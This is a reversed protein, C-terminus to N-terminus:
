QCCSIFPMSIISGHQALDTEAITVDLYPRIGNKYQLQIVDYVEKALAVNEKQAIYTALNSKYASLARTYETNLNNQLDTLSWDLRKKSTWKEEQIKATRKGGQFIPFALTAGVYSYPYEPEYLESFANNQYNLIYAGFANLTPLFAWYSYKVNADQLEKQTYLIKYDIHETYNIQQLTDMLVENEM